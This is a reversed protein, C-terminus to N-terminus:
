GLKAGDAMIQEGGQNSLESSYRHFFVKIAPFDDGSTWFLGSHCQLNLGHADDFDWDSGHKIGHQLVQVKWLWQGSKGM